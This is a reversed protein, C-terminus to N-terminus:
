TVQLFHTSVNTFRAFYGIWPKHGKYKKAKVTSEMEKAKEPDKYAGIIHWHGETRGFTDGDSYRVVVLFVHNVTQPDFDVQVTEVWWQEINKRLCFKWDVEIQEDERDAFEGQEKKGGGYRREDYVVYLQYRPTTIKEKAM